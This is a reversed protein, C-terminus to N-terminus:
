ALAIQKQSDEELELILRQARLAQDKFATAMDELQDRQEIAYGILGGAIGAIASFILLYGFFLAISIAVVKAAIRSANSTNIIVLTQSFIAIHIPKVCFAKIKSEWKIWNLASLAAERPIGQVAGLRNRLAQHLDIRFEGIFPLHHQQINARPQVLIM